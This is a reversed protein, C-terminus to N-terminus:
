TAEAKTIEEAKPLQLANQHVYSHGDCYQLTNYCTCVVLLLFVPYPTQLRSAGRVKGAAPKESERDQGIM